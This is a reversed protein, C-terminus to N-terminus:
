YTVTVVVTDTYSGAVANVQGGPIRGFVTQTANTASSAPGYTVTNTDNWVTTRGTTTYLDYTLYNTGSDKMRRNPSSFNSGNGLEMVGSAGKTCKIDFTGTQDLAASANDVVPDYSGFNVSVPNSLKCKDAITAAVPLSATDTGAIVMNINGVMALGVTTTLAFALLPKKNKNFTKM